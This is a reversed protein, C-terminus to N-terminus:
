KKGINIFADIMKLASIAFETGKNGYIGITREEAQKKTNTTLVGFIIPKNYQLMVKTIGYTVAQCIYDFHPTDGRIVCGICIIASIDHSLAIKQAAVPLEYAGPVWLSLIREEPIGNKQLTQLSANYLSETIDKNWEATIIGIKQFSDFFQPSLTIKKIKNEFSNM